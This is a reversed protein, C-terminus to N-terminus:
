MKINIIKYRFNKARMNSANDTMHTYQRHVGFSGSIISIVSRHKTCINIINKSQAEHTNTTGSVNIM